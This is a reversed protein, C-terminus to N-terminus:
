QARTENGAEVQANSAEITAELNDLRRSMDDLKGILESSINSFKSGLQNLLDDVVAVLESPATESAQQEDGVNLRNVQASLTADDSSM